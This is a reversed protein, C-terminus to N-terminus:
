ESIVNFLQAQKNRIVKKGGQAALTQARVYADNYEAHTSDDFWWWKDFFYKPKRKYEVYWMNNYHSLRVQVIPDLVIELGQDSLNM